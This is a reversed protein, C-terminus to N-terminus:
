RKMNAAADHLAKRIMSGDSSSGTRQILLITYTGRVPDLWSQTGFAGGHGFSGPSLNETVGKSEAVLGFGFGWHSGEVFGAKLDGTHNRTMEALTAADIIKRGNLTGKNLLCQYLRALDDGTSYLGGAPVPHKALWPYDLVGGPTPTLQGDKKGYTVVLRQLQEPRPYPTTEFMGLPHFIKAALYRDYSMGSVVEIIRGLTDIGPNCYSWKTGPEFMLPSQSIAITTDRLTWQRKQYVDAFGAPYNPLGSTHTLLDKVTIPRSPKKLTVTDQERAVQLMQGKFEPLYKEVPDAGNVKGEEVLQMIALATIPKTMSAIRFLSDRRMPLHHERDALGLVQVDIVGDKDGVFTVVGALDGNDVFGQMAARLDASPEKASVLSVLSCGICLALLFRRM